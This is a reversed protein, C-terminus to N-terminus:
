VKVGRFGGVIQAAGLIVRSTADSSKIQQELNDVAAQLDAADADTLEPVSPASSLAIFEAELNEELGHIELIADTDPDPLAAIANMADLLAGIQKLLAQQEDM